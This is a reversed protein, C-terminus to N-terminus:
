DIYSLRSALKVVKLVKYVQVGVGRLVLKAPKRDALAALEELAVLARPEIREVSSFDLTLQGDASDLTERAQQIISLTDTKLSDTPM